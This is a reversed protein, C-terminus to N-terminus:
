VNVEGAFPEALVIGINDHGGNENARDVLRETAEVIDRSSKVIRYMEEDEIMNSLGDTCMLIMDGKQLRYEFFDVELKERAGVARTIINKDPHHKADEENLGGLRVMEQVFSHDKTLQHLKGSSLIYARSDGAHAVYVREDAVIAVVVTTGMGALEPNNKSMDYVSLNAAIIASM